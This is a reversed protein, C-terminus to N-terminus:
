NTQELNGLVRSEHNTSVKPTGGAQFANATATPAPAVGGWHEKATSARRGWGWTEQQVGPFRSSIDDSSNRDFSSLASLSPASAAGGLRTAPTAVTKMSVGGGLVPTSLSCTPSTQLGDDSCPSASALFSAGSAPQDVEKSEFPPPKIEPCKTFIDPAYEVSISV